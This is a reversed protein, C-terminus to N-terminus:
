FFQYIKDKEKNDVYMKILNTQVLSLIEKSTTKRQQNICDAALSFKSYLFKVEKEPDKKYESAYKLNLV